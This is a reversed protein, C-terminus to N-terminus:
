QSADINGHNLPFSYIKSFFIGFDQNQKRLSFYNKIRTRGNKLIQILKKDQITIVHEIKKALLKPIRKPVVWGTNDHLVNESLGEANSVITPLGIAQAELVANCFGEQISYQLYIDADEYYKLINKHPIAGAFTVRDGLGLQHTSFILRELEQGEGVITYHFPINKEKIISLAQVIYDLGKKWHLRAVTLFHINETHSFTGWNKGELKFHVVNIAPHITVQPIKDKLGQEHAAVLLDSSISHAKNVKEWLRQYCGPHKLPYVCIDYGRLSVGMKAGIARAVNERRISMTAFGFHLWDLKEKLIHSNLYLNEWRTRITVGDKKELHLFRFFIIPYNIFLIGYAVMMRALKIFILNNVKPHPAMRCFHFKEDQNAFLVVEYGVKQLGMIKSNFFTESKSPTNSLVLGIKMKHM